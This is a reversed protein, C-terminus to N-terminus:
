RPNAQAVAPLAAALSIAMAAFVAAGFIRLTLSRMPDEKRDRQHPTKLGGKVITVRACSFQHYSTMVLKWFGSDLVIYVLASTRHTMVAPLDPWIGSSTSSTITGATSLADPTRTALPRPDHLRLHGPAPRNGQPGQANAGATRRGRDSGPNQGQSQCPLSGHEQRLSRLILLAREAEGQGNSRKLMKQGVRPPFYSEYVVLPHDDGQGLLVMKLVQGADPLKLISAVELGAPLLDHFLICTSPKMGIDMVTRRFTVIRSLGQNVKRRAVSFGKGQKRYLVGENIM